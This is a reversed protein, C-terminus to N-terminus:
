QIVLKQTFRAGTATTLTLFYVGANLNGQEITVTNGSLESMNRVMKGAVDTMSVNFTSNAENSFSIRAAGSFPNPSVQFYAGNRKAEETAVLTCENYKFVDVVYLGTGAPITVIRRLSGVPGSVASACGVPSFNESAPAASQNELYIYQYDGPYMSAFTHSYTMGNMDDTLSVDTPRTFAPFSFSGNLLYAAGPARDSVDVRFQVPRATGLPACSTCSGFCATGETYSGGNRLGTYTGPVTMQRNGGDICAGSPAEDYGWDDGFIAKWFYLGQPLRLPNSVYITSGPTEPHLLTVNPKWDEPNGAAKQFSGAACVVNNHPAGYIGFARTFDMRITVMVTDPPGLPCNGTGPRGFCSVPLVTAASITGMRNPSGEWQASDGNMLTTAFKYEFAGAAMQFTGEYVMDMNADTLELLGQTWDPVPPVVRAGFNGTVTVKRNPAPMNGRMDVRFTVPYPQAYMSTAVILAVFSFLLKKM